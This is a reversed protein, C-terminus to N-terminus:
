EREQKFLMSDGAAPNNAVSEPMPSPPLDLRAAIGELEASAAPYLQLLLPDHGPIIHEDSAALEGCRQWGAHMDAVNYLVPFPRGTIMNAYFHSADSALVVWGRQTWVRVVQMGMTHGGLHHVSVGPALQQDGDHFVVKERYLRRVMAVVDEVNFAFRIGQHLMHRGTAFQMELDQLQVRARPFDDLTGAHDFHMHTIILDEVQDADVGILALGEAPTRLLQRGRNRAEDAGFGADVVFTHDPGIVAWVYYDLPMPADHPDGGM